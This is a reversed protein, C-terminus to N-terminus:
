IYKFNLEHWFNECYKKLANEQFNMEKKTNFNASIVEFLFKISLLKKFM